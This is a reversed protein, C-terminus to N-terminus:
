PAKMRQAAADLAEKPKQRGGSIAEFASTISSWFRGMEPLSPM